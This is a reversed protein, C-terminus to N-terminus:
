NGRRQLSLLTLITDPGMGAFPISDFKEPTPWGTWRTSNIDIFYFNNYIPSFPVEDVVIKQLQKGLTKLEDLNETREMAKIIKDTEPDNWRGQDLTASKGIPTLYQSSLSRYVGYVSAGGTSSAALDFQGLNQKDYYGASPQGASKVQLGLTQKWTNILIDAYNGWGWDANFLISPQYRKGDKVLAGNDVTWGGKALEAKAADADVKQVKGKYAPDLWDAFLQESLGTPGAETGPRQLTTVVATRDVTLALARRVHVDDFPAKGTNFLVSMAGGNSYMQYLHKDPDKAVYEKEGNAWSASAWDLEGKLLQAKLAEGATPVIKFTTMPLKGGWYDPRAQLTIQQPKFEKVRFPGTGIPDPNTWTNLNQSSWVHKPIMPLLINAFQNLTAYSPEAFTVKVTGADVKVVSKYTVGAISFAPKEIPLGLSYVVDDATFKQGDSWKADTRLKITLVKGQETFAWSQALWPKVVGGDSYDVRMLPEYILEMNPAKDTAPGMVNYNRVFTTGGDTKAYTISAEAGSTGKPGNPATAPGSCGAILVAGVVMLARWRSRM